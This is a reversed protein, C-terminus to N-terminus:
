YGYGELGYWNYMEEFSYNVVEIDKPKIGSFSQGDSPQMYCLSVSKGNIIPYLGVKNKKVWVYGENGKEFLNVMFACIAKTGENNQVYEREREREEKSKVIGEGATEFLKRMLGM